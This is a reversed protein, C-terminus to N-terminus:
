GSEGGFGANALVNPETGGFGKMRKNIDVLQSKSLEHINDDWGIRTVNSKGELLTNEINQTKQHYFKVNESNSNSYSYEYTGTSGSQDYGLLWDDDGIFLSKINLFEM